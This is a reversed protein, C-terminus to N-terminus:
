LETEIISDAPPSPAANVIDPPAAAGNEGAPAPADTGIPELSPLAIEEDNTDLTAAADAPTAIEPPAAAEVPTVPEVPTAPEAYETPQSGERFTEFVNDISGPTALKGSKRDINVYVINKPPTIPIKPGSNVADKMYTLWIPAAARSGTENKGMMVERDMGVWVGTVLDSAYGIFWADMFDNTTGTKGATPVNLYNVKRGTGEKVVAYLINNILFATDEPIVQEPKEEHQEVVTGNRDEIRRIFYPENRVGKNAFIGYVSTLEMLNVSSAGLALSLNDDLASKIGIKGAYEVVYDIGIKQLVKITVINRSHTV